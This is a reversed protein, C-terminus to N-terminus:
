HGDACAAVAGDNALEDLLKVLASAARPWTYRLSRWRGALGMGRALAPDDILKHCAAAFEGAFASTSPGEILYGNRGSDVLCGLGGARRAVVPTGCAMAELAVLGFSESESPVICVDAARYYSSLLEHAVPPVFHVRDALGLRAALSRLSSAYQEGGPGSPGGIVVLRASGTGRMTSLVHLSRIAIDPAKLAQLRGAFLFLPCSSEIGIARRAQMKDGPSFFAHNVGPSIVRVRGRDAGYLSTVEGAEVATSVILSDANRAIRHESECRLWSPDKRVKALTHFTCLLPIDLTEQVAMGSLGSLWYNAYVAQPLSGSSGYIAAMVGETFQATLGYMDERAVPAPPGAHVHHVNFGPEVVQVRPLDPAGARTFVDCEVGRRALATALAKVHVNMGGGDGEGPQALPSTHMSLVALRRRQAAKM